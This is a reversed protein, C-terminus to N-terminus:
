EQEVPGEEESPQSRKITETGFLETQGIVTRGPVYKANGAECVDEQGPAATRPLPNFHLHNGGPGEAPASAQGGESNPGEAPQFAIVNLWKGYDNGEGNSASLNSLFL